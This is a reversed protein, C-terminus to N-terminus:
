PGEMDYFAQLLCWWPTRVALFAQSFGLGLARVVGEFRM